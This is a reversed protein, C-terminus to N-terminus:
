TSAVWGEEGGGGAECEPIYQLTHSAHSTRYQVSFFFCYPPWPVHFHYCWDVKYLSIGWLAATFTTAKVESPLYLSRLNQRRKNIKMDLLPTTTMTHPQTLSPSWHSSLLPASLSHRVVTSCGDSTNVDPLLKHLHPCRCVLQLTHMLSHNLPNTALSHSLATLTFLSPITYMYMRYTTLLHNYSLFNPLAQSSFLSFYQAELVNLM